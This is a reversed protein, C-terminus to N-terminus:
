NKLECKQCASEMCGNLDEILMYPWENVMGFKTFVRGHPVFQCTVENNNCQVPWEVNDCQEKCKIM